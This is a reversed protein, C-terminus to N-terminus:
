AVHSCWRVRARVCVYMHMCVYMHVCVYLCVRVCVVYGPCPSCSSSSARIGSPRCAEIDTIRHTLRASAPLTMKSKEKFLLQFFEVDTTFGTFGTFRAFNIGVQPTNHHETIHHM